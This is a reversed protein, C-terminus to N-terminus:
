RATTSPCTSGSATAGTPARLRRRRRARGLRLHGARRRRARGLRRAHPRDGGRSDVISVHARPDSERVFFDLRAERPGDTARPSFTLERDPNPACVELVLDPSRSRVVLVALAAALVLLALFLAAGAPVRRSGITLAPGQRRRRDRDRGGRRRRAPRRPRVAGGEGSRPRPGERGEARGGEARRAYLVTTREFSPDSSSSVDGLPYGNSEVETAVTQALGSVATGNLITM